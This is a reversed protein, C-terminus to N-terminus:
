NKIKNRGMGVITVAIVTGYVLWQNIALWILNLYFVLLPIVSISFAFSLAIIELIDIDDDQFWAKTLWYGPIFLLWVSWFVIRLTDVIWWQYWSQSLGLGVGLMALILITIIIQTKNNM